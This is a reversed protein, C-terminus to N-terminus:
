DTWRRLRNARGGAARIPIVWILTWLREASLSARKATSIQRHPDKLKVYVVAPVRHWREEEGNVRIFREGSSM